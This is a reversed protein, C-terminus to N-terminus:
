LLKWCRPLRISHRRPWPSCLCVDGFAPPQPFPPVGCHAREEESLNSWEGISTTSSSDLESGTWDEVPKDALALLTVFLHHSTHWCMFSGAGKTAKDAPALHLAHRCLLHLSLHCLQRSHVHNALEKEDAEKIQM